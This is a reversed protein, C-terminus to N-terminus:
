EPAGSPGFAEQELAALVRLRLTEPVEDRCRKSILQRLEAEFDFAELCPSCGRLHFEIRTRRAETLEGDLFTYIEKVVEVCDVGSEEDNSDMGTGWSGENSDSPM